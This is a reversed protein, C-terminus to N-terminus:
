REGVRAAVSFVVSLSVAPLSAVKPAVSKVAAVAEVAVEQVEHDAEVDVWQHSSNM